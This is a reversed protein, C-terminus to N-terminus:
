KKIGQQSANSLTIDGFSDLLLKYSQNEFLLIFSIEVWQNNENLSNIKGGDFFYIHNNLCRLKSNRWNYKKFSVPFEFIKVEKTNINLTKYQYEKQQTYLGYLIENGNIYLEYVKDEINRIDNLSDLWYLNQGITFFINNNIIYSALGPSEYEDFVFTSILKNTKGNLHYLLMKNGKINFSTQFFYIKNCIAIIDCIYDDQNKNSYLLTKIMTQINFSWISYGDTYLFVSDNVKEFDYYFVSALFTDVENKNVNVILIDYSPSDDTCDECYAFLAYENFGLLFDGKLKITNTNLMFVAAIFFLLHSM